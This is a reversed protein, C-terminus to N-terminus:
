SAPGCRRTRPLLAAFVTAAGVLNALVDALNGHRHPLTSQLYEMGGGYLSAACFSIWAATLTSRALSRKLPILLLWALVAFLFIHVAKDLHPILSLTSPEVDVEMTLLIHLAMVWGLPLLWTLHPTHKTM